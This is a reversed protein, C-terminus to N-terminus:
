ARQCTMKMSIAAPRAVMTARLFLLTNNEIGAGKNGGCNGTIADIRM